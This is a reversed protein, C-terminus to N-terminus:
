EEYSVRRHPIGARQLAESTGATAWLQLGMDAARRALRLSERRHRPAVSLVLPGQLPLRVGAAMFAKYLAGALHRDLGIVEGTSRMEPGLAVESGPLKEHSFVPAKVGVQRPAPLHYVGPFGLDELSAGLMVRTAVQVLPFGLVKSVFPVTRSARLNVELLYVRYQHVVFQANLFGRVQLARNLLQLIETVRGAVEPPLHPAPFVTMSDGSHVGAREVHQMFGPVLLNVGDGIADVELEVGPLYRDVLVPRQLDVAM